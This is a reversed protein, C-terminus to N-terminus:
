GRKSGTKIKMGWSNAKVCLGAYQVRELIYKGPMTAEKVESGTIPTGILDDLEM